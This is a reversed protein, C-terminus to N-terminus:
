PYLLSLEWHDERRTYLRREHLRDPKGFWFEISEPALRCGSWHPPRPVETEAYRQAIEAANARLSELSELPKSQDSAWAGIQSGRPRTSFYGDAETGDVVSVPGEVRVQVRISPWWFCLAAHSNESLERGKRSELNTYFVFGDDDAHKVLVMRVSPHSQRDATALAAANIFDDGPSQISGCLKNFLVVPNDKM